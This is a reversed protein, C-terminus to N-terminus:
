HFKLNIRMQSLRNAVAPDYMFASALSQLKDIVPKLMKDVEYKVSYDSKYVREISRLAVMLKNFSQVTPVFVVAERADQFQTLTQLRSEFASVAELVGALVTLQNMNRISSKGERYATEQRQYLDYMQRSIKKDADQIERYQRSRIAENSMQTYQYRFMKKVNKLM